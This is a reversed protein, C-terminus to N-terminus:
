AYFPIGRSILALFWSVGTEFTKLSVFSIARYFYFSPLPSPNFNPAFFVLYAKTDILVTNMPVKINCYKM